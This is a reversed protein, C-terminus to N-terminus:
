AVIRLHKRNQQALKREYWEALIQAFHVPRGQQGQDDVAMDLSLNAVDLTNLSVTEGERKTITGYAGDPTIRAAFSFTPRNM